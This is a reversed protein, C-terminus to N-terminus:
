SSMSQTNRRLKIFFSEILLELNANSNLRRQIEAAEQMMAFVASDSFRSRLKLLKNRLDRNYYYGKDIDTNVILLDRLIKQFHIIWDRFNEKTQTSMSQGKGFIDEITMKSLLEVFNLVDERIKLGDNEALKFAQGLSGNSIVAIETANDINKTELGRKINDESLREFNIIMCRSRLTMLLRSRNSTILIFKSLGSPEEITKLLCNQAASNMLESDDIIVMRLNSMVPMLSVERQLARVQDIKIMPNAKSRGPEMYYYDPHSATMFARCSPCHGCPKDDSECLLSIAATEAIKKKGIGELGSFIVANPFQQSNIMERIQRIKEENGLIDSWNFETM